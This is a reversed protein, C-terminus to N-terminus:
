RLLTVNGVELIKAEDTFEVRAQWTYVGTPLLEGSNFLSGNWSFDGDRSTFVEQGWRNFINIEFSKLNTGFSMFTFEDNMGDNNPSFATPANIRYRVHVYISKMTICGNDDEVAVTYMGGELNSLDETYAGNSWEFWYPPIGGSVSLDVGGLGGPYKVTDLVVIVEEPESIEISGSAQCGIEDSITLTYHGPMLSDIDQVHEFELGDKEWLFHTYLGNGGTIDLVSIAGSSDHYCILDSGNLEFNLQDLALIEIDKNVAPCQADTMSVSYVGPELNSRFSVTDGNNWSFSYPLTGGSPILSITGNNMQYCADTKEHDLLLTDPQILTISDESFCLQVDEITFRYKGAKVNELNLMNGIINNQEDFWNVTFPAEGVQPTVEVKGDSFGFCSIDTPEILFDLYCSVVITDQRTCGPGEDYFVTLIYTGNQTIELCSDAGITNGSGDEWLYTTTLNGNFNEACLLLTDGELISTDNPLQYNMPSPHFIWGTNSENVDLSFHGADFIANGTASINQMEIFEGAIMGTDKHIEAQLGGSSLLTVFQCNNGWIRLSDIITQSAMEQMVYTYGPSFLLTDFQNNGYVSGNNTFDVHGYIGNGEIFGTSDFRIMNITDNGYLEGTSHFILSDVMYVNGPGSVIGTGKFLISDAYVDSSYGTVEGDYNFMVDEFFVSDTSRLNVQQDNLEAAMLLDNYHLGIGNRQLFNGSDIKISSTNEPIQLNNGDVDWHHKIYIKSTDLTLVRNASTRSSFTFCTMPYGNTTLDGYNYYINNRNELSKGLDFNDLLEWGGDAGDFYVHNNINHLKINNTHIFENKNRSGFLIYGPFTFYMNPDFLLSGYIRFFSGSFNGSFEPMFQVDEWILNRAFANNFNITVEQSEESFSYYDFIVTDAPTPICEGGSGNSMLSWHSPDEWDGAGGVWYLKRSGPGTITDWGDNNFLDISHEAIYVAEGVAHIDQLAIYNVLLTDSPKQIYTQTGSSTSQLLAIGTCTDPTVIQHNIRQTKGGQLSYYNGGTLSISDFTNNGYIKGNSNFGSWNFKCYTNGIEGNFTYIESNGKEEDFEADYYAVTDGGYTYLKSSSSLFEIFSTGANFLLNENNLSWAPIPSRYKIIVDTQGLYLARNFASDSHFTNCEMYNGTFNLTGSYFTLNGFIHLSDPVTWSGEGIFDVDGNLGVSATKVVNTPLDSIFQIPGTINNEMNPNFELSGTITLPVIAPEQTFVPQDNGTWFMNNCYIEDIDVIVTDQDVFSNENFFLNDYLLPLCDEDPGGNLTSWHTTDTWYGTGNVWYMNRSEENILLDGSNNEVDISYDAILTGNGMQAHISELSVFSIKLDGSSKSLTAQGAGGAKIEILGACGRAKLNNQILQTKESEFNYSHGASLSLSGFTNGGQIGADNQLIVHGYSHGGGAFLITSNLNENGLIITSGEQTLILYEDVYWEPNDNQIKVLSSNLNLSKSLDSQAIFSGCCLDWNNTNLIGSELYISNIGVKLTDVLNWSGQGSFYMDSTFELGAPDILNNMEESLFHIDEFYNLKVVPSLTLSGWIELPFSGTIIPDNIVDSWDMSHCQAPIDIILSHGLEKFSDENFVVNDFQSPLGGITSEWNSEDSWNGEDGIWYFTYGQGIIEPSILVFLLIFIGVRLLKGSLMYHKRGLKKSM